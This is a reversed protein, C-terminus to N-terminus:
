HEIVRPHIWIKTLYVKKSWIFEYEDLIRLRHDAAQRSIGVFDTVERTGAPALRYVAQEVGKQSLTKYRRRPEM